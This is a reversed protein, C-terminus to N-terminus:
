AVDPMDEDELRGRAGDIGNHGLAGNAGIAGEDSDASPSRKRRSRRRGEEEVDVDDEVNGDEDRDDADGDGEVEAGIDVVVEEEPDVLELAGATPEEEADGEDVTAQVDAVSQMILAIQKQKLRQVAQVAQKREDLVSLEKQFNEIALKTAKHPPYKNIDKCAEEYIEKHYRKKREVALGEKLAGIQEQVENISDEIQDRQRSYDQIDRESTKEIAEGKRLEFGYLRIEKIAKEAAQRVKEEKVPDAVRPSSGELDPLVLQLFAQQFFVMPSIPM